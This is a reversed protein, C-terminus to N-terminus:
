HLIVTWLGSNTNSPVRVAQKEVDPLKVPHGAPAESMVVDSKVATLFATVAVLVTRLSRNRRPSVHVRSLVAPKVASPGPRMPAKPEPGRGTMDGVAVNGDLSVKSAKELAVVGVIFSQRRISTLNSAEDRERSLNTPTVPSPPM